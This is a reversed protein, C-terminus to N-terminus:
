SGSSFLSWWKPRRPTAPPALGERSATEKLRSAVTKPVTIQAADYRLLEEPTQFERQAQESVLRAQPALQEQEQHRLKHRSPNM